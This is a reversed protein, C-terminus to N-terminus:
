PICLKMVLLTDRWHVKNQGPKIWNVDESDVDTLNLKM